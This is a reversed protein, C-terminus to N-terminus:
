ILAAPTRGAGGDDDGDSCWRGRFGEEWGRERKKQAQRRKTEGSELVSSALHEAGAAREDESDKGEGSGEAGRGGERGRIAVRRRVPDRVRVDVARVPGRERERRTRKLVRAEREVVRALVRAPADVIRVGEHTSQTRLFLPATSM